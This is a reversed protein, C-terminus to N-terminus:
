RRPPSILKRREALDLDLEAMELPSAGRALALFDDAIVTFGRAFLSAMIGEAKEAKVGNELCAELLAQRSYAGHGLPWRAFFEGLPHSGQTPNRPM